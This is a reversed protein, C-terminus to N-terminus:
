SAILELMLRHLRRDGTLEPHFATALVRGQRVAIPRGDADRALVEVDTGVESVVPARIFVGHVPEDGLSPIAVDAEFSDLQRGYANRQVTIDLLKLVPEDGDAIRDALLIMGACTGYVAAGGHALAVNPARLGCMDVLKRMTTSEGGPLILADLGVLDRPLRVEVPEAGVERLANAHERVDGQLALIGIRPTRALPKGAPASAPATTAM